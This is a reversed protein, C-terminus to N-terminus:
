ASMAVIMDPRMIRAISGYLIKTSIVVALRPRSRKPGQGGSESGHPPGRRVRRM